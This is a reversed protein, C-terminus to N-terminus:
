EDKQFNRIDFSVVCFHCVKSEEFLRLMSLDSFSSNPTILWPDKEEKGELNHFHLEEGHTYSSTTM